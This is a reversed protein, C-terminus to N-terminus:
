AASTAPLSSANSSCRSCSLNAALCRARSREAQAWCVELRIHKVHLRFPMRWKRRLSVVVLLWSNSHQPLSNSLLRISNGLIERCVPQLQRGFRVVPIQQLKDPSEVSIASVKDPQGESRVTFRNCSNISRIWAAAPKLHWIRCNSYRVPFSNSFTAWCEKCPRIRVPESSRKRFVTFS